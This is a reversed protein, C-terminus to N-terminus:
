EVIFVPKQHQPAQPTHPTIHQINFLHCSKNFKKPFLYKPHIDQGVARGCYAVIRNEIDFVPIAIRNKMMGYQCFGMPMGKSRKFILEVAQPNFLNFPKEHQAHQDHQPNPNKSTPATGTRTGSGSAYSASASASANQIVQFFPVTGALTRISGIM